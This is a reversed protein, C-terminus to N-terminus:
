KKAYDPDDTILVPANPGGSQLVMRMATERYGAVSQGDPDPDPEAHAVGAVAVTEGPEIVAEYYRLTRNFIWGEPKQDNEVLFRTLEPTADHMFGSSFRGDREVALKAGAVRVLLTGSDDRIAFDKGMERALVGKWSNRGHMEEVVVRWFACARGTLPAILPDAIPDAKGIFRAWTQDPLHRISRYPAERLKRKLRREPDKIVSWVVGGGIFGFVALWFLAHPDV